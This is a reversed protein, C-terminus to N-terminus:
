GGAELFEWIWFRDVKRSGGLAWYFYNNVGSNWYKKCRKVMKTPTNALDLDLNVWFSVM